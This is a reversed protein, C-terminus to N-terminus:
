LEPPQGRIVCHCITVTRAGGVKLTRWLGAMETPGALPTPEIQTIAATLLLMLMLLPRLLSWDFYFRKLILWQWVVGHRGKWLLNRRWRIAINNDMDGGGTVLVANVHRFVTGLHNLNAPNKYVGLCELLYTM